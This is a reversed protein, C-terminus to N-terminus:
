SRRLAAECDEADFNIFPFAEANLSYRNGYEERETMRIYPAASPSGSRLEKVLSRINMGFPKLHRLWWDTKVTENLLVQELGYRGDSLATFKLQAATDGTDDEINFIWDGGADKVPVIMGEAREMGALFKDVRRNQLTAGLWNQPLGAMYEMMHVGEMVAIRPATLVRDMAKPWKM